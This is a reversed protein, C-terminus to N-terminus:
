RGQDTEDNSPALVTDQRPVKKVSDGPKPPTAVDDTTIVKPKLSLVRGDQGQITFKGQVSSDVKPTIGPIPGSVRYLEFCCCICVNAVIFPKSYVIKM